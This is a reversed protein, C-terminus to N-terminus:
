AEGRTADGGVDHLGDRAPQPLEMRYLVFAEGSRSELQEVPSWGLREYFKGAGAEGPPTVLELSSAGSAMARKVCERVLEAGIGQHRVGPDVAVDVLEAVPAEAALGTASGAKQWRARAMRWLAGAYRKARTRALEAAVSPRTALHAAALSALVIGHRKVLYRYHAPPDLAAILFGCVQSSDAGVPEERHAVLALAHPSELFSLQYRRLFREGFRTVFVEPMTRAHLAASAALDRREMDRIVGHM